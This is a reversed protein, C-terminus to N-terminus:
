YPLFTGQDDNAEKRCMKCTPRKSEEGGISDIRLRKKALAVPPFTGYSINGEDDYVEHGPACQQVTKRGIMCKECRVNGSSNHDCCDKCVFCPKKILTCYICPLNWEKLDDEVSPYKRRVERKTMKHQLPHTLLALSSIHSVTTPCKSAPLSSPPPQTSPPRNSPKAASRSTVPLSLPLLPQSATCYTSNDVDMPTSARPPDELLGTAVEEQDPRPPLEEAECFHMEEYPLTLLNWEVFVLYRALDTHAHIYNHQLAITLSSWPQHPRPSKHLSRCLGKHTSPISPVSQSQLLYLEGM